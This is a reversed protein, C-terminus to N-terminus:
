SELPIRLVRGRPLVQGEKLHNREEIQEPTVGYVNSVKSVTDGRRVVHRIEKKGNRASVATKNARGAATGPLRLRRGAKLPSTTTLGNAEALQRLPVGTRKSIGSLTDGKTVRVTRAGRTGARAKRTRRTGDDLRKLATEVQAASVEKGPVAEEESLGTMPIVLRASRKMKSTKMGNLEQLIPVTSDYRNALSALTEGKKVTHLLFIVRADERIEEMRDEAIGGYGKPLRIEYSERNPPTCFRRLEPNWDRLSEYPVGILRGLERLDTGGPVNVKDFELPDEYKVEGFGFKEPEKAITLAAIMKPVYDKTEQKLYRHRILEVYDESRYRTVARQIKGEGANYAATALPWSDFMGYLDKLYSAAAHTSKEYDRREDAWWDIRLGYRRGTGAIFQWPGSARAVSYAKPSFGSEILALYILDEPLGYTALIGRMMDAYKGSRQLYLEFRSRGGNQFYHIFKDIRGMLGAYLDDDRHEGEWQASVFFANSPVQEPGDEPDKSLQLDVEGQSLVRDQQKEEPPASLVAVDEPPLGSPAVSPAVPRTKASAAPEPAVHSAAVTVPTPASVASEGAYGPVSLTVLTVFVTVAFYTPHAKRGRVCGGATRFYTNM